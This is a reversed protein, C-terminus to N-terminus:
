KYGGDDPRWAIIHSYTILRSLQTQSIDWANALNFEKWPNRSPELAQHALAAPTYELRGEWSFQQQQKWHITQMNSDQPPTM